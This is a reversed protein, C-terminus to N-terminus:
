KNTQKTLKEISIYIELVCYGYMYRIWAKKQFTLLNNYVVPGANKRFLKATRKRVLWGRIWAAILVQAKAMALRQMEQALYRRERWMRWYATIMILGERTEQYKSKQRFGKYHSAIVNAAAKKKLFATREKWGRYIAQIKVALLITKARRIDEMQLVSRPDRIFIKSRGFSYQAKTLDCGDNLIYKAGDRHDGNFNPWTLKTLLKYRQLFKDYEMRFAYGARRVRLNELLGLYRVQM